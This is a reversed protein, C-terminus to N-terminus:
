GRAASTRGGDADPRAPDRPRQGVLRHDPGAKGPDELGEGAHEAVGPEFGVEVVQEPGEGVDEVAGGLADGALRSRLSSACRELWRSCSPESTFDTSSSRSVASPM